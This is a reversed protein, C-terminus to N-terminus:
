RLDQRDGLGHESDRFAGEGGPDVGPRALRVVGEERRIAVSELSRGVCPGAICFGDAIRFRAGHTFCLIFRGDRDLDLFRGPLFNLPTGLHPCANVYALVTDGRRILFIGTLEAGSEFWFERCGGEPIEEIRCLPAAGGAAMRTAGCREAISM